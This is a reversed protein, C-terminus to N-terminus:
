TNHLVEKVASAVNVLIQREAPSCDILLSAMDDYYDFHDNRQNGLLLNDMTTGLADAITMLVDLSGRKHGNEIRNLYSVSMNCTEALEEQTLGARHRYMAIQRGILRYDANM